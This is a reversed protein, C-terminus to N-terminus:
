NTSQKASRLPDTGTHTYEEVRRSVEKLDDGVFSDAYRGRLIKRVDFESRSQPIAFYRSNFRLINFGHFGEMAMSTPGQPYWYDRVQKSTIKYVHYDVRLEYHQFRGNRARGHYFDNELDPPGLFTIYPREIVNRLPDLFPYRTRTVHIKGLDEKSVGKNEVFRHSHFWSKDFPFECDMDLLYVDRQGFNKALLTELQRPTMVVRPDSTPGVTRYATFHGGSYLRIDATHVANGIVISGAPTHERLWDAVRTIGNYSAVVVRYSGYLTLAHDAITTVLIAGMAFRVARAPWRVGATFAWLKEVTAAVIISAPVLAYALHVPETYVKLFPLFALLFWVALLVSRKLAIVAVGLCLFVGITHWDGRFCKIGVLLAAYVLPLISQFAARSWQAKRSGEVRSPILRIVDRASEALFSVVALVLLSPPLLVIFHWGALWRIANLQARVWAATDGQWVIPAELTQALSGMAFISRIPLDVGFICRILITPYLAHLLCLVAAATLWTPRRNRRLEEFIVLVMVIGIFERFWPGFLMVLCLGLTAWRYHPRKEVVRWYLLLGTCVLLTVISQLGVGVVWAATVNPASFVFLFAALYAWREDAVFRKAVFFVSCVTAGHVLGCLCYWSFLNMFQGCFVAMGFHAMMASLPRYGSGALSGFCDRVIQTYFALGQPSPPNGHDYLEVALGPTDDFVLPAQSRVAVFTAAVALVMAIPPALVRWRSQQRGIRASNLSQALDAEM